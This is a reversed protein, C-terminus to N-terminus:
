LLALNPPNQIQINSPVMQLDGLAKFVPEKDRSIRSKSGGQYTPNNGLICGPSYSHCMISEVTLHAPLSGNILM